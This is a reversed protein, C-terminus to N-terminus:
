CWSVESPEQGGQPGGTAREPWQSEVVEVVQGKSMTSTCLLHTM